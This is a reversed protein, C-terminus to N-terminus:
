IADYHVSRGTAFHLPEQAVNIPKSSFSQAIRAINGRVSERKIRFRKGSLHTGVVAREPTKGAWLYMGKASVHRVFYRPVHVRTCAHMCAHM